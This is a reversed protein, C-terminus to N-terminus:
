GRYRALRLAVVATGITTLIILTGVANVTPDISTRLMGWVLTPLTNGGALTFYTLVFDDLSLAMAILAAGIVNARILPLTVTWFARFPSAGLDRASDLVTRDFAVMRAYMILVVFPQTFALHAMVVTPIGLPVEFSKYFSLLALGLVLPPLMVPASLLLLLGDAFRRRLPALGVAAMTGVLTSIAGVSLTVIVSKRAAHQFSASGFIEAYWDLTLGGMPFVTVRNQGFSFIAVLIMPSVLFLLVTALFLRNLLRANM